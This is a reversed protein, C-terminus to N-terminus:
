INLKMIFDKIGAYVEDDFNEYEVLVKNVWEIGHGGVSKIFNEIEGVPVMYIGSEKLTENMENFKQTADGSPLNSIGNRKIKEWKNEKKIFRRISDIDKDSLANQGQEKIKDILSQLENIKVENINNNLNSSIIDYKSKINDWNIGHAKVLKEFVSEEKLVDIDVITKININLSKLANVVDPMRHKGGSHIFLTESFVDEKLNNNVISYMKCDSDSECLVVNNHFISSMINSYKLFSDNWIQMVKDNNLPSIKNTNGDREIRIIKVREPAIELLGKLFEESHTSIFAQQTDDLTEAIIKGMINAQPPHLFAEPEDILYTCYRDIMLYLLIGVFSKIGDGQEHVKDYLNLIKGYERLLGGVDKEELQEVNIRPGICLPRYKGYSSNISLEKGFAKKFNDSLWIEKDKEFEVYHIPHNYIENQEVTECLNVINLRQTTDLNAIFIDRLEDLKDKNLSTDSICYATSRFKFTSYFTTGYETTKKCIEPIFEKIKDKNGKVIEIDKVVKTEKKRECLNYIDKLSQSKGVNNPGVFVVIDDKNIRIEEDAFKIKSIYVGCEKRM